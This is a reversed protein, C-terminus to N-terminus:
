DATYFAPVFPEAPQTLFRGSIEKCHVRAERTGLAVLESIAGADDLSFRGPTVSVDIRVPAKGTMITVQGIVLDSQARLLLDVIGKNWQFIGGIRRRKTVYFPETTTGISLLDVNEPREKLICVAELVGLM